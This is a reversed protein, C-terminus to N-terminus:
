DLLNFYGTCESDPNKILIIIPSGDERCRFGTFHLNDGPIYICIAAPAAIQHLDCGRGVSPNATMRHDSCRQMLSLFIKSSPRPRELSTGPELGLQWEEGDWLLRFKERIQLPQSEPAFSALVSLFFQCSIRSSRLFEDQFWCVIAPENTPQLKCTCDQTNKSSIVRSHRKRQQM